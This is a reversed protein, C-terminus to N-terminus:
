QEDQDVLSFRRSTTTSTFAALLEPTLSEKVKKVDLRESVVSTWRVVQRNNHLGIQCDGLAREIHARAIDAVEQLEKIERLTTRYREVWNATDLDFDVVGMEIEVSM